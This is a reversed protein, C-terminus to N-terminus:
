RVIPGQLFLLQAWTHVPTATPAGPRIQASQGFHQSSEEKDVYATVTHVRLENTIIQQRVRVARAGARKLAAKLSGIQPLVDRIDNQLVFMQVAQASPTVNGFELQFLQKASDGPARDVM